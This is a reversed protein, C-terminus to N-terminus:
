ERKEAKGEIITGASNRRRHRSLLRGLGVLLLLALFAFVTLIVAIALFAVLLPVVLLKLLRNKLGAGVWLRRTVMLLSGLTVQMVEISRSRLDV